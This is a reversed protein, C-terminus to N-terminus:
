WPQFNTNRAGRWPARGSKHMFKLRKQARKQKQNMIRRYDNYAIRTRKAYAKKEIKAMDIQSLTHRAWRDIDIPHIGENRADINDQQMDRWMQNINNMINHLITRERRYDNWANRANVTLAEDENNIREAM